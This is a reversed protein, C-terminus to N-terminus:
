RHASACPAPLVVIPANTLAAMVTDYGMTMAPSSVQAPWRRVNIPDCQYIM